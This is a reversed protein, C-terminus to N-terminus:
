EPAGIVTLVVVVHPAESRRERRLGVIAGDWKRAVLEVVQADDQWIGAKDMGDLVAKAVNDVDPRKARPIMEDSDKARFLGGARRFVADVEVRVPTGAPLPWVGGSEERATAACEAVMAEYNRTKKPTVGRAKGGNVFVRPRGKACPEGPIIFTLTM